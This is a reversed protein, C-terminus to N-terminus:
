LRSARLHKRAEMLARGLRNEGWHKRNQPIMAENATFGIGWIRDESAAEVLLRERADLLLNRLKTNQGFKAISGAVVVQSKIKDWSQGDFGKARSAIRKQEKPDKTALILQQATTDHFRGTKCYM